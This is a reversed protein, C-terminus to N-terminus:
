APPGRRYFLDMTITAEASAETPGDAATGRLQYQLERLGANPTSGEIEGHLRILERLPGQLTVRARGYGLGADPVSGELIWDFVRIEVAAQRAMEGLRQQSALRFEDPSAAVPFRELAAGREARLRELLALIETRNAVVGESRDLRQTLVQLEDRAENQAEIWPVIVVRLVALVAVVALLTRTRQTSDV